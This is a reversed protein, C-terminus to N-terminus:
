KVVEDYENQFAWLAEDACFDRWEKRIEERRDENIGWVDFASYEMNLWDEFDREDDCLVKTHEDVKANYEDQTLIERKDWNVYYFNKM